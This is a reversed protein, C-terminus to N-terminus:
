STWRAASDVLWEGAPTKVLVVNFADLNTSASARPPSETFQVVLTLVLKDPSPVAQVTCTQVQAASVPLAPGSAAWDRETAAYLAVTVLPRLRKLDAQPPKSTDHTYLLRIAQYTNRLISDTVTGECPGGVTIVPNDPINQENGQPAQSNMATAKPSASPTPNSNNGTFFWLGMGLVTVLIVAALAPGAYRNSNGAM